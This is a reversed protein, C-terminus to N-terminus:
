LLWHYALTKIHVTWVCVCVWVCVWVCILTLPESHSPVTDKHVCHPSYHHYITATCYILESYGDRHRRGGEPSGGSSLPPERIIGGNMRHVVKVGHFGGQRGIRLPVCACACVCACLETDEPSGQSVEGARSLPTNIMTQQPGTPGKDTDPERQTGRSWQAGDESKWRFLHKEIKKCWRWFITPKGFVLGPTLLKNIIM